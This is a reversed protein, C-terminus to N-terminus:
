GTDFVFLLHILFSCTELFYNDLGNIILLKCKPVFKYSIYPLYQPAEGFFEDNMM